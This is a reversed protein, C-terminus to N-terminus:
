AFAAYGNSYPMTCVLQAFYRWRIEIADGGNSATSAPLRLATLGDEDALHPAPGLTCLKWSDMNLLWGGDEPVYPGAKVIVGGGPTTMMLSPRGFKGEGGDEMRYGRAGLELDLRNFNSYSLWLTKPKTPSVRRVKADLKKVTEEISGQWAQRHGAVKQVSGGATLRNVNFFLASTPTSRPIWAPIGKILLNLDSGSSNGRVVHDSADLAADLAATVTITGTDEDINSITRSGGARVTGPAGGTGDNDYFLVMQGVHFKIADAPQALTFSTATGPDAALQGLSGSGDSWLANELQQGLSEMKEEVQRERAKFFAGEDNRMAMMTEVDITCVAYYKARTIAFLVGSTSTAAAETNATDLTTGFGQGVDTSIPMNTVSGTLEDSRKIAGLTPKDYAVLNEIKRQPFRAKIFTALTTLNSGAM